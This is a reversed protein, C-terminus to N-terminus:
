RLEKNPTTKKNVDKFIGYNTFSNSSMKTKPTLFYTRNFVIENTKKDIKLDEIRIEIIDSNENERIVIDIKEIKLSDLHEKNVSKINNLNYFFLSDRTEKFNEFEFSGLGFGKDQFGRTQFINHVIKINKKNTIEKKIIKFVPKTTYYNEGCGGNCKDSIGTIIKRNPIEQLQNFPLDNSINLRFTETSDLIKYGFAHSDRGGWADYKYLVKSTGEIKQMYLESIQWEGIGCSYFTYIFLLIILNKTKKMKQAIVGLASM